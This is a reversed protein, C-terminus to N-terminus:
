YEPADEYWDIIDDVDGHGRDYEQLIRITEAKDLGTRIMARAIEEETFQRM